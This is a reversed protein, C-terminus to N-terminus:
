VYQHWGEPSTMRLFERHQKPITCLYVVQHFFPDSESYRDQHLLDRVLATETEEIQKSSPAVKDQSSGLTVKDHIARCTNHFESVCDDYSVVKSKKKVPSQLSFDRDTRKSSQGPHHSPTADPDAPPPTQPTAETRTDEPAHGVVDVLERREYPEHGLIAFL